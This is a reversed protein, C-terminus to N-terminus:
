IKHIEVEDHTPTKILTVIMLSINQLRHTIKLRSWKDNNSYTDVIMHPQHRVAKLHFETYGWIIIHMFDKLFIM